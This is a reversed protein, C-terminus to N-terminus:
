RETDFAAEAREIARRLKRQTAEQWDPPPAVLRVDRGHGVDALYRAFRVVWWVWLTQTYRAIRQPARHDDALACYREVVWAWRAEDVSAYAPHTVLDAIEFAPDGWGSNEWDVSAWAGPRRVINRTNPDAHCLAVPVEAWTHELRRELRTLLSPLVPPWADRELLTLQQDIITRCDAANRAHLVALDLTFPVMVPTVRHVTALHEVLMLWGEDDAPPADIIEGALWTQVVVPQEYSEDLLVPRPAVALGLHELARLANYERRARHRADRITWKIALDHEANTARMIINNAGGSVPQLLWDEWQTEARGHEALHDLLRHLSQNPRSPIPQEIRNPM